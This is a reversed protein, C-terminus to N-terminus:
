RISYYIRLQNNLYTIKAISYRWRNESWDWDEKLRWDGMKPDLDEFKDFDIREIDEVIIESEGPTNWDYILVEAHESITQLFQHKYNNDLKELFDKNFTKEEGKGRRKLNEEVTAPSADLYVVLHPKM